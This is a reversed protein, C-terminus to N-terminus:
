KVVRDFYADPYPEDELTFHWWELDYPRFGHKEMVLRLLMRNARQADNPRPDATNSLPDFFDYPGGMDLGDITLDVTSGRSHGSREALYGEAFLRSKEIAPYYAAKTSQDDTAAWRIFYDVARQPRYCDFLRFKLGMGALDASARALAEAAPRSLLCKARKYGEVRVGTFNDAGAYRMDVVAAPIMKGADVFDPASAANALLMLELLV